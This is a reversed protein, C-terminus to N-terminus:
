NKILRYRQRLYSKSKPNDLHSIYIGNKLNLNNFIKDHKLIKVCCTSHEIIFFNKDFADHLTKTLLIGNFENEDNELKSDKFELLHCADIFNTDGSIVCTNNYRKKVKDSFIKQIPRIETNIYKKEKLKVKNNFRLRLICSIASKNYKKKAIDIKGDRILHYIDDLKCFEM